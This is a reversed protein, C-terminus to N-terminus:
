LAGCSPLVVFAGGWALYRHFSGWTVGPLSGIPAALRYTLNDVQLWNDVLVLWRLQQDGYPLNVYSIAPDDDNRWSVQDGFRQYIDRNYQGLTGGLSQYIQQQVSFGFKGDSSDLWLQDIIKLDDCSFNRLDEERFWGETERRAAQLMLNETVQNALRYDGALLADQLPQYNVGTAASILTPESPRNLTTQSIPNGSANIPPLLPVITPTPRAAVPPSPNLAIDPSRPYGEWSPVQNGDTIDEVRQQVSHLLQYINMEPMALYNLLSATFPSKEGDIGDIAVENEEAAYAIMTGRPPRTSALGQNGPGKPRGWRSYFPNNRCADIILFNFDHVVSFMQAVVYDLRVADFQVDVQSSTTELGVPMLYNVGDIQVGHGSYYFVNIGGERMRGSFDRLADEMERRTANVVPPPVDFGLSKLKEYMAAADQRPGDLNDDGEYDYNAIILATRSQRQQALLQLATNNDKTQGAISWFDLSLPFSIEKLAATASQDISVSILAVLAVKMAVVSWNLLKFGQM